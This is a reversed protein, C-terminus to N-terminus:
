TDTPKGKCIRQGRIVTATTLYIPLLVEISRLNDQIALSPVMWKILLLIIMIACEYALLRSKKRKGLLITFAPFFLLPNIFLINENFYTMDMDSFVMMFLLVSGMVALAFLIVFLLIRRLVPVFTNFLTLLLAILVGFLAYWLDPNVLQDPVTHRVKSGTTDQLIQVEKALKTGDPYTFELVAEHLTQPLFMQDYLSPLRDISKGQLTDLAWFIAPSHIMNRMVLQRYTGLGKVSRAWLGFQGGTAFDIIDRIRTACNDDYFHYLYTNAEPTIHMRLFDILAFKAEDPLRLEVLAVDRQEEIAEEIRWGAESALVYYYMRGRAFNLYFHEQNYDFIGWDYM